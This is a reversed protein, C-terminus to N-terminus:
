INIYVSFLCCKYLASCKQRVNVRDYVCECVLPTFQNNFTDVTHPAARRSCNPNPLRAWACRAVAPSPVLLGRTALWSARGGSGNGPCLFVSFWLWTSFITVVGIGTSRSFHSKLPIEQAVGGMPSIRFFISTEWRWRCVSSWLPQEVMQQVSLPTIHAKVINSFGGWGCNGNVM